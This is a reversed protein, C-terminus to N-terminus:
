ESYDGASQICKIRSVRLFVSRDEMTVFLRGDYDLKRAAAQRKRAEDEILRRITIRLREPHVPKLLYDLANAEFARVAHEGSTTVFVVKFTAELQDLLDFGSRGPMETDLFVVDPELERIVEVAHEVCGAEGAVELRPHRSLLRQLETRAREEDDVIVAQLPGTM